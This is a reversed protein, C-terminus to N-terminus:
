GTEPLLLGALLMFLSLSASIAFGPLFSGTIDTLYGVLLPAIFNGINGGIQVTFAVLSATGPSDKYIEFPITFLTPGYISNLLGYCAISIFIIAVNNFLVAIMAFLGLLMGPVILFPRRRKFRLPLLGGVISAVIGVLTMIATISSAKELPMRFVQHYYSPLWAGLSNGLGWCGMTALSMLITSRRALAQRVTLQPSNGTQATVGVPQGPKDRNRDKGLFIWAVAVLLAVASYTAITNQWAFATALPVTILFAM